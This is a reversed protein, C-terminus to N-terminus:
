PGLQHKVTPKAITCYPSAALRILDCASYVVVSGAIICRQSYMSGKLLGRFAVTAVIGAKLPQPSRKFVEFSVMSPCHALSLRQLCLLLPPGWDNGLPPPPPCRGCSGPRPPPSERRGGVAARENSPPFFLLTAAAGWAFHRRRACPGLMCTMCPARPPTHPVTTAVMMLSHM